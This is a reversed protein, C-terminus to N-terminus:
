PLSLALTPIWVRIRQMPFLLSCLCIPVSRCLFWQGDATTKTRTINLPSASHVWMLTQARFVCCRCERRQAYLVKLRFFHVYNVFQLPWDTRLRELLTVAWNNWTCVVFAGKVKCRRRLSTLTESAAASTFLTCRQSVSIIFNHYIQIQAVPHTVWPTLAKCSFLPREPIRHVVGMACACGCMGIFRGEQQESSTKCGVYISLM